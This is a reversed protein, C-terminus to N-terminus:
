NFRKIIKPQAVQRRQVTFLNGLSGSNGINPSNLIVRGNGQGQSFSGRSVNNLLVPTGTSNGFASINGNGNFFVGQNQPQLNLKNNRILNQFDETQRILFKKQRGRPFINVPQTNVPPITIIQRTPQV